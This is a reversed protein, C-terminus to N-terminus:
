ITKVTLNDGSFPIEISPNGLGCLDTHYRLPVHLTPISPTYISQWNISSSGALQPGCWERPLRSHAIYSPQNLIYRPTLWCPAKSPNRGQSGETISKSLFTYALYIREEELKHTQWLLQFCVLSLALCSTEASVPCLWPIPNSAWEVSPFKQGIGYLQGCGTAFKSRKWLYYNSCVCWLNLHQPCM